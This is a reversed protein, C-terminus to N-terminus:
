RSLLRFGALGWRHPQRDLPDADVRKEFGVFLELAGARGNVRFGVEVSGGAQTGRNAVSDDVGFMQGTGHAFVGVRDSLPRRVLLSLEGVWTYDVYSHQVLRAAELDADVTMGAVTVRRMARAGLENWAVAFRKPRDSIHRSVHHFVGALETAGVRASASTELTYNGQNPDFPRYESGLVAQYDLVLGVRGAVYDVVDLSGGFHTDWSFREDPPMKAGGGSALAAASLHFDYRALFEPGLPAPAVVPQQIQAAARAACLFTLCAAIVGRGLLGDSCRPFPKRSPAHEPKRLCAGLLSGPEDSM